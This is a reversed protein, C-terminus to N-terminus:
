TQIINVVRPIPKQPYFVLIAATHLLLVQLYDARSNEIALISFCYFFVFVNKKM